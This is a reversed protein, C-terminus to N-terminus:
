SKLAPKVLTKTSDTAAMIIMYGVKDLARKIRISKLDSFYRHKFSLEVVGSANCLYVEHIRSVRLNEDRILDAVPHSNFLMVKTIVDSPIEM